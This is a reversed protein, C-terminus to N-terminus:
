QLLIAHACSQRAFYRSELGRARAPTCPPFPALPVLRGCGSASSRGSGSPGTDPTAATVGDVGPDWRCSRSSPPTQPEPTRSSARATLSHIPFVLSLVPLSVSPPSGPLPCPGAM